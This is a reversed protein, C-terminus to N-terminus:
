RVRRRADVCVVVWGAAVLDAPADSADDKFAFRAVVPEKAPHAVILQEAAGSRVIEVAM